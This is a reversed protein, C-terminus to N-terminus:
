VKGSNGSFLEMIIDKVSLPDYKVYKTPHRGTLLQQAYAEYFASYAPVIYKRIAVRLEDRLPGPTVLWVSQARHIDEV